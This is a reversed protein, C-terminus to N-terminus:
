VAWGVEDGGAGAILEERLREGRVSKFLGYESGLMVIVELPLAAHGRLVPPIRATIDILWSAHPLRMHPFQAREPIMRWLLPYM